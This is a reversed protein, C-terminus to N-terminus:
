KGLYAECARKTQHDMIVITSGNIMVTLTIRKIVSSGAFIADVERGSETIVKYDSVKGVTAKLQESFVLKDAHGMENVKTIHFILEVNDLMLPKGKVSWDSTAKGLIPKKLVAKAQDAKYKDSADVLKRLSPSLDAKDGHYICEIWDLTGTHGARPANRGLRGLTTTSQADYVGTGSTIEDEIVMLVTDPDVKTGPKLVNHVNQTFRLVYNRPDTTSSRLREALGKFIECSDEHTEAAEIFAVTSYTAFKMVSFRPDLTSPEFFSKNYAITQGKIVKDNMKLDTVIDHPYTKGEADGYRRGLLVGETTGDKYTIVIGLNSLMTVKGEQAATKCFLDSTRQGMLGELTTQIRPQVYGECAITHSNQISTFVNRKMDNHQPGAVLNLSTSLLNPVELDERAERFGNLDGLTPSWPAFVNYGVDGSDVGSESDRGASKIHFARAPMNFTERSRGGEGGFTMSDHMKVNQVPNIDECTKVAGDGMVAQWTAFHGLNIRGRGTSNMNRFNRYAKYMERHMLGALREYGLIQQQDTDQTDPSNNNTLDVCGRMLMAMFTRPGGSAKLRRLSIPDIYGNNMNDLERLHMAKVDQYELAVDYAETSDFSAAPFKKIEKELRTFGGFILSALRDRKSFVFTHDAFRVKFEHPDVRVSRGEEMRYEVGSLKLLNRFGLQRGMVVGVPITAGLVDMEAFEVPSKGEDVQLTEFVNGIPEDGNRTRVMFINDKTIFIPQDNGTKGCLINGDTEVQKRVNEGLLQDRTRHEFDLHLGKYTPNAIDFSKFEQSLTSYFFPSEFNRDYVDAPRVKSIGPVEGLQAKTLHKTLYATVNHAKARTRTLFIKSTNTSLGVQDGHLSRYNLDNIQKRLHYAVGKARFTGDEKPVPFRHRVPSSKGNIPKATYYIELWHGEVTEVEEIELNEILVGMNTLGLISALVEKKFVKKVYGRDLEETPTSLASAHAMGTPDVLTIREKDFVLDEPKVTAAELLPKGSGFPDPMTLLAEISKLAKRYEAASITSNDVMKELMRKLNDGFQPAEYVHAKLGEEDFTTQTPDYVEEVTSEGVAKARRTEMEELLALEEEFAQNDEAAARDVVEPEGGAPPSGLINQIADSLKEGPGQPLDGPLSGAKAAEDAFSGESRGDGSSYDVDQEGEPLEITDPQRDGEKAEQSERAAKEGQLNYNQIALLFKMFDMQLESSSKKSVSSQDTQNPQDKLWSNLYGLNIIVSTGDFLQFLLNTRALSEVPLRGLATKARDGPAEPTGVDFWMWMDLMARKFPTDFFVMHQPGFGKSAARLAAMSPIENATRIIVFNQRQSTETVNRVNQWLTMWTDQWRFYPTLKISEAYRYGNDSLGYNIAVLQNDEKIAAIPKMTAMFQKKNQSIWARIINEKQVRTYGIAHNGETLELENYMVVRNSLKNLFVLSTDPFDQGDEAPLHLVANRCLQTVPRPQPSRLLTPTRVGVTRYFAAFNQM